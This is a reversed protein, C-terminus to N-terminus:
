SISYREIISIVLKTDQQINETFDAFSRGLLESAKLRDRTAENPDDMIRSWFRQREVRSKVGQKAAFDDRAQIEALVNSKNTKTLLQRAYAYSMGVRDATAKVDGDYYKVFQERKTM